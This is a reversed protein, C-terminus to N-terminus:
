PLDLMGRKNLFILYKKAASEFVPNAYIKRRYEKAEETESSMLAIDLSDGQKMLITVMGEVACCVGIMSRKLMELQIERLSPIHGSYQLKKLNKELSEQYHAIITDFEEVRVDEM